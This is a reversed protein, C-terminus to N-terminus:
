LTMEPEFSDDQRADCTACKTVYYSGGLGGYCRREWNHHGRIRCIQKGIWLMFKVFHWGM